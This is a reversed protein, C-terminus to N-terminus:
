HGGETRRVATFPLSLVMSRAKGAMTDGTLEATCKIKMRVPSSVAATFRVISGDIHGDTIPKGDYTGTLTAGASTLTLVASDDGGGTKFTINWTGDVTM